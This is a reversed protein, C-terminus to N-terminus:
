EFRHPFVQEVLIVTIDVIVDESIGYYDFLQGCQMETGEYVLAYWRQMHGSAGSELKLSDLVLGEELDQSYREIGEDSPIRVRCIFDGSAWRLDANVYPPQHVEWARMPNPDPPLDGVLEM